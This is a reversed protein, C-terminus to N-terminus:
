LAIRKPPRTDRMVGCHPHWEAGVAEERLESNLENGAPVAHENLSGLIIVEGVIREAGWCNWARSDRLLAVFNDRISHSQDASLAHTPDGAAAPRRVL